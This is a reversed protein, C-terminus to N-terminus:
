RTPPCLLHKSKHRCSSFFESRSNLTAGDPHFMIYYKEKLCLRCVNTVPNYSPARDLPKFTLSYPVAQDKLSWIHKSLATFSRQSENKINQKHNSWRLKWSPESLGTYTDTHGTDERTVSAQYIRCGPLCQGQMVCPLNSKQCNCTRDDLKIPQIKESVKKNHRSIVQKMNSTTRYSINLTNRNCITRLPHGLPFSSDIIKLFEAGVNTKVTQSFPPNFWTVNRTRTRKANHTPDPKEYVLLHTHGAKKLAEQYPTAAEYFIQENSSLLSLRKQVALPINKKISPPHNSKADVYLITNNPKTYPRHTDNRLDLEV